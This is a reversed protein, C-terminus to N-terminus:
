VAVTASIANQPVVASVCVAGASPSCRIRGRDTESTSDTLYPGFRFSLPSPASEM